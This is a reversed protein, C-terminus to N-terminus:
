YLRQFTEMLNPLIKQCFNGVLVKRKFNVLLHFALFSRLKKHSFSHLFMEDMLIFYFMNETIWGFSLQYICFLFERNPM